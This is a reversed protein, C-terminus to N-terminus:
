FTWPFSSYMQC